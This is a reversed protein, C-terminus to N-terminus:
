IPLIDSEPAAEPVALAEEMPAGQELAALEDPTLQMPANPDGNLTLDEQEASIPPAELQNADEIPPTNARAVLENADEIWRRFLELRSEPANQTRYLLYAQQMMVIGMDLQQYPEPTQYQGKDIMLEIAREIDDIPADVRNTYAELDPFDLLKRGFEPPIMGAQMLEQVDQLRGSPTNSLSSTPFIHMMYKDEELDVDKWSVTEMFKKGKVNVKFDDDELYCEKAIKIFVKSADMFAKEYRAAVTQFRESEIDSFERLAKGSDLGTPKSAQASLQSIGAIEFAREYLRDLHSFLEPPVSGVSEYSPKTGVYKIIGGIKNNLHAAVVKSSAEVFVKPISTLHMSVQITKLIKNLELQIGALQESLGQGWFGLPRVGWRFFVFPFYDKDYEEEWLTKNEICISHKGDTANPGSKIHWSEIVTAMDNDQATDHFSGDSSGIDDIFGAHDPFMDKLVDKNIQKTQHIQRPEGYYSETDDITIEDIFVRDCKIKNDQKYIKIAGTGFICSDQFAQTAKDYFDSSYFQGEMFKTLQKAKRQASWDGGDTLFTPKPKAKTIKSVVTDIMSQVINLTLRNQTASSTETKAYQYSQLGIVEYNGYLRMNKLNNLSKYSQRQDLFQTYQFVSEHIKDKDEKWWYFNNNKPGNYPM